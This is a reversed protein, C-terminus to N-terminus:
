QTIVNVDVTVGGSKPPLTIDLIRFKKNIYPISAVFKSIDYLEFKKNRLYSNGIGALNIDRLIFYDLYLKDFSGGAFIKLGQIEFNISVNSGINVSPSISGIKIWEWRDFCVWVCIGFIRKCCKFRPIKTWLEGTASVKVNINTAKFNPSNVILSPREYLEVKAYALHARAFDLSSATTKPLDELINKIEETQWKQLKERSFDGGDFDSPLPGKYGPTTQNKVANYYNAIVENIEEMSIHWQIKLENKLEEDSKDAIRTSKGNIAWSFLSEMETYNYVKDNENNFQSTNDMISPSKPFPNIHEFLVLPIDMSTLIKDFSTQNIEARLDSSSILQQRENM